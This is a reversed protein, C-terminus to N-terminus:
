GASQFFYKLWSMMINCQLWHLHCACKAWKHSIENELTAEKTLTPYCITSLTPDILKSLQLLHQHPSILSTRATLTLIFFSRFHTHTWQRPTSQFQTYSFRSISASTQPSGTCHKTIQSSQWFDRFSNLEDRALERLGTM